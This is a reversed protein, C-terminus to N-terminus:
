FSQKFRSSWSAVVDGTLCLYCLPDKLQDWNMSIPLEQRMLQFWHKTYMKVPMTYAPLPTFRPLVCFPQHDCLLGCGNIEIPWAYVSNKWNLDMLMPFTEM